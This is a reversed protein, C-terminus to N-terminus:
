RPIVSRPRGDWASLRECRGQAAHGEPVWVGVAQEELVHLVRLTIPSTGRRCMGFLVELMLGGATLDETGIVDRAEFLDPGGGM